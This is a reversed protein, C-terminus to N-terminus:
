TKRKRVASKTDSTLSSDNVHTEGLIDRVNRGKESEIKMDSESEEDAGLEDEM